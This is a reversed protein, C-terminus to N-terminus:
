IINPQNNYAFEVGIFIKLIRSAIWMCENSYTLLDNVARILASLNFFFVSIVLIKFTFSILLNQIKLFNNSLQNFYKFFVSISDITFVNILLFM